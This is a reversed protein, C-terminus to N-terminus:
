PAASAAGWDNIACATMGTEGIVIMEATMRATTGVVIETIGATMEATVAHNALRADRDAATTLCILWKFIEKKNIM